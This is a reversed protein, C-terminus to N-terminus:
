QWLSGPLKIWRWASFNEVLASAMISQQMCLFINVITIFLRRILVARPRELLNSRDNSALDLSISAGGHLLHSM